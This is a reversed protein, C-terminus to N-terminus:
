EKHFKTFQFPVNLMEAVHLSTYQQGRVLQDEKRKGAEKMKWNISINQVSDSLIYYNRM